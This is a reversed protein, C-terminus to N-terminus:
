RRRLLTLSWWQRNKRTGTIEEEPTETNEKKLQNRGNVTEWSRNKIQIKQALKDIRAVTWLLLLVFSLQLLRSTSRSFQTSRCMRISTLHPSTRQHVKVRNHYRWFCNPFQLQVLKGQSVSILFQTPRCKGISILHSSIRQHVKVQNHFHLIFLM